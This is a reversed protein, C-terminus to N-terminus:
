LGGPLVVRGAHQLAGVGARLPQVLGAGRGPLPVRTADPRVHHGRVVRSKAAGGGAGAASLSVGSARAAPPEDAPGATGRTVGDDADAAGGAQPHGCPGIAAALRDDPTGRLVATALVTCRDAADVGSERGTRAGTRLLLDLTGPGGGCVTARDVLCGSRWPDM